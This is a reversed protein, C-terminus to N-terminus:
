IVGDLAVLFLGFGEDVLKFKFEFLVIGEYLLLVFEGDFVIFVKHELM